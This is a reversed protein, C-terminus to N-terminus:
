TYLLFAVIGVAMAVIGGIIAWRTFKRSGATNKGAIVQAYGMIGAFAIMLIAKVPASDVGGFIPVSIAVGIAAGFVFRAQSSLAKKNKTPKM